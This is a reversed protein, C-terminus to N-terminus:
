SLEQKAHLIFSACTRDDRLAPYVFKIVVTSFACGALIEYPGAGALTHFRITRQVKCVGAQGDPIPCCHGCAFCRVRKRDLAEYLEGERISEHLVDRLTPM